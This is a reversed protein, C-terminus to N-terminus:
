VELPSYINPDFARLSPQSLLKGESAFITEKGNDAVFLLSRQELAKLGTILQNLKCFMCTSDSGQADVDKSRTIVVTNCRNFSTVLDPCTKLSKKTLEYM